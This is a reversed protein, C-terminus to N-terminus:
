VGLVKLASDAIGELGRGTIGGKRDGHPSEQYVFFGVAGHGTEGVGRATGFCDNLLEQKGLLYAIFTECRRTSYPLNASFAITAAQNIARDGTAPEMTVGRCGQVILRAPGHLALYRLQLTLWAHLSTIRWHATIRLPMDRPQIVGVLNHPQMVLASGVPLHLVGIEALASRTASICFTEPVNCRIRTLGTMGASLSTLAFRWNLLWQTTKEGNVSASQLFEPHVLLEHASDISVARSVSSGGAELTLTGGSEPLLKMPPRRAALPALVFYFLAKIAIPTLIVGLLILLATPLVEHVPRWLKGVWNISELKQLEVRRARLSQLANDLASQSLPMEALPALFPMGNVLKLQRTYDDYARVNAARLSAEAKKLAEHQRYEDMGPIRTATPYNGELAERKRVVEQWDAYLKAHIQRLRELEDRQTKASQTAKLREGTDVLWRREQQLLSIAAEVQLTQLQGHAISRGALIPALGGLAEREQRKRKIERDVEQVRAQLKALSAKRLEPARANAEVVLEQLETSIKKDADTLRASEDRISRWAEWESWAAQGLLLVAIIMVLSLLHRMLWRLVTVLLGQM